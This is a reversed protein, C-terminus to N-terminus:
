PGKADGSETGSDADSGLERVLEGTRDFVPIAFEMNNRIYYENGLVGSSSRETSPDRGGHDDGVGARGFPVLLGEGGLYHGLSDVFNGTSDYRALVNPIRRVTPAEVGMPEQVSSGVLVSGDALVGLVNPYSWAQWPQITITKEVAGALDLVTLRLNM